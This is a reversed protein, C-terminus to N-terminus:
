NGKEHNLEKANIALGAPILGFLDFGKSLLFKFNEPYSEDSIQQWFIFRRKLKKVKETLNSETKFNYWYGSKDKQVEDFEKVSNYRYRLWTKVEEETMDSLDRLFPKIYDIHTHRTISTDAVICYGNVDIQQLQGVYSKAQAPMVEVQRGLYLHLYDKIEKSM